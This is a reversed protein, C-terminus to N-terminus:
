TRENGRGDEMLEELEFDEGECEPCVLFVFEGEQVRKLKDLTGDWPCKLCHAVIEGM